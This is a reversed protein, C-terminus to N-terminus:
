NRSSRSALAVAVAAVILFGYLVWRSMKRREVEETTAIPGPHSWAPYRIWAQTGCFVIVLWIVDRVTKPVGLPWLLLTFLTAAVFIGLVSLFRLATPM